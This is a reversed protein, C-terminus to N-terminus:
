ANGGLPGTGTSDTAPVPGDHHTHLGGTPPGHSVQASARALLGSVGNLCQARFVLVLLIAALQIDQGAM